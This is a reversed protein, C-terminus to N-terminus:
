RGRGGGGFADPNEPLNVSELTEVPEESDGKTADIVVPKEAAEAERTEAQLKIEEAKGEILRVSRANLAAAAPARADWPVYGHTTIFLLQDRQQDGSVMAHKPQGYGMTLIHRFTPSGLGDGAELWRRVRKRIALNDLGLVERCVARINEPVQPPRGKVRGSGPTKPSGPKRGRRKPENNNTPTDM